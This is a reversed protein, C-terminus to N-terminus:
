WNLTARDDWPGTLVQKRTPYNTVDYTVKEVTWAASTATGPAARGVYVPQGDIRGAYDLRSEFMAVGTVATALSDLQGPAFTVSGGGYAQTGMGKLRFDLKELARAVADLAEAGGPTAEPHPAIVAAIARAIEDASPGTGNLSTVATVIASLDPPDIRIEPLELPAPPLALNDEIRRLAAWVSQLWQEQTLEM